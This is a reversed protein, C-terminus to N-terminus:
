KVRSREMLSESTDPRCSKKKISTIPVAKMKGTVLGIGRKRFSDETDELIRDKMVLVAKM